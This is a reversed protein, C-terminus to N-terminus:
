DGLGFPSAASFMDDMSLTPQATVYTSPRIGQEAERFVELYSVFSPGERTDHGFMWTSTLADLLSMDKNSHIGSIKNVEQIQYERYWSFIYKAIKELTQLQKMDPREFWPLKGMVECWSSIYEQINEYMPKIDKSPYRFSFAVDDGMNAFADCLREITVPRQSVKGYSDLGNIPDMSELRRVQEYSMFYSRPAYIQFTRTTLFQYLTVLRERLHMYREVDM